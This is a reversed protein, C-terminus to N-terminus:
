GTYIFLSVTEGPGSLQESIFNTWLETEVSTNSLYKKFELHYLSTCVKRQADPFTVTILIWYILLKRFM